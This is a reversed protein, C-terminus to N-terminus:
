DVLELEGKKEKAAKRRRHEENARRINEMRVELAVEESSIRTGALGEAAKYPAGEVFPKFTSREPVPYPYPYLALM